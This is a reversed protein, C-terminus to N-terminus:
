KPSGYLEEMLRDVEDPTYEKNELKMLLERLAEDKFDSSSQEEPQTLYRLDNRFSVDKMAILTEGDKNLVTINCKMLGSAQQNYDERQQVLTYCLSPLPKYIEILGVGYPLLPRGKKGGKIGILGAVSQMAGDLLSPHLMYKDGGDPEIILRSVVEGNGIHMSDIANFKEGYDIGIETFYPYIETRTFTFPCREMISRIDFNRAPARSGEDTYMGGSAFICDGEDSGDREARIEFRVGDVKPYIVTEVRKPYNEIELKNEWIINKMTVVTQESAAEGAARAMEIFAMGPLIMKGGVRHQDFYFESGNFISLYKHEKLTAVNYHVFPHIVLVHDNGEDRGRSEVWYRERAFPYGPVSVRKPVDDTYLKEWPLEYGHIWVKAWELLQESKRSPDDMMLAGDDSLDPSNMINGSFLHEGESCGQEYRLLGKIIGEKDSAVIALREPMEERGTQYTYAIDSIQEDTLSEALLFKRVKEAYAVLRDRNKASLVFLFTRPSKNKRPLAGATFQEILVHANAGGAGFSSIGARRANTGEFMKSQHWDALEKQVYFPSDAFNIKANEAGSHLLSPALKNHKLQLLIKTIGAIGAASELHGINSKVSGIACFQRKDTYQQFAKVLGALEIPDGLSTGTGHAEIYSITEPHIQAKRIADSIVSCQSQPSPVHYGSSKGTHNLSTGKIIGYILDNDAIAKNLPKLLIAGVGEGPVYGDGGEGFSRCRGDSSLFQGQSLVKYKRPHLTLNVGGAIALESEGHLLSVCALHIATLSSSCMTDVAMSPGTLNLFYSVRNAISAFVSTPYTAAGRDMGEYHQYQGWMAGVFVGVRKGDIRKRTYGADELAHWATEMFIREQPDMLEAEKPSINFFLADFKDVDSIFGGWKGYSTGAHNRDPHYHKTYNWREEPIETICDQGNALHAWFESIDDAMPYRGALGIIAIDQDTKGEFDITIPSTDLQIGEEEEPAIWYDLHQEFRHKDGELALIHTESMQLAKQFASFGADIGLVAMGKDAMVKKNRLTTQMSGQEWLPWSVALSRGHRKKQLRLRERIGVYHDMFHNAYAYDVQGINGILSTVSSFVAFFHLHEEQLEEDLYVSGLIKPACVEEFEDIRKDASIGDRLVGAAHLVGDIHGFRAKATRVLHAVASRVSVDSQIYCAEAGMEELQQLQEMREESLASRGTLILKAQYKAALKRAFLYGLGGMGGTILYVGNKVFPDTSERKSMDVRQLVKLHRRNDMFLVEEHREKIATWEKSLLRIWAGTKASESIHAITFRLKPHEKQLVRTMGSVALLQPETWDTVANLGCIFSTPQELRLYSLALTLQLVSYACLKIESPNGKVHKDIGIRSWFHLVAEPYWGAHKLNEILAFYDAANRPSITFRDSCVQEFVDGQKVLVVDYQEKVLADAHVNDIDFVLIRRINRERNASTEEAKWVPRYFVTESESHEGSDEIEMMRSELECCEVREMLDGHNHDMYQALDKINAYEFLLTPYLSCDFRQELLAVIDLLDRSNLGQDYFGRNLDISSEPQQLFQAVITRLRRETPTTQKEGAATALENQTIQLFSDKSSNLSLEEPKAATTRLLSQLLNDSRVRKTGLRNYFAIPLGEKNLVEIDVYTIDGTASITFSDKRVLFYGKEGMQGQTKFSAMHLPIFPKAGDPTENMYSSMLVGLMCTAGDLYAPHFHFFHLYPRATDGLEVEALIYAKSEYVQGRLKMFDDHHIDSNRIVEYVSELDRVSEARHKLADIDLSAAGQAEVPDTRLHIECQLNDSVESDIVKDGVVRKSKAVVKWYDGQPELTIEIKKDFHDSTAVPEMFLINRVELQEPSYGKSILFRYLIDLFTVGPMIPIQYVRHDKVIFDDNRVFLSCKYVNM